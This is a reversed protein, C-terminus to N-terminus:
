ENDGLEDRVDKVDQETFIFELEDEDLNNPNQATEAATNLKEPIRYYKYQRTTQYAKDYLKYAAARRIILDVTSCQTLDSEAWANTRSQIDSMFRARHEDIEEAGILEEEVEKQASELDTISNKKTDLIRACEAKLANILVEGTEEDHEDIIEDASNSWVPELKTALDAVDEDEFLSKAVARNAGANECFGDLLKQQRHFLGTEAKSIDVFEEQDYEDIYDPLEMESPRPTDLDLVDYAGVEEAYILTKIALRRKERAVRLHAEVGRVDLTDDDKEKDYKAAIVNRPLDQVERNYLISAQRDTLTLAAHNPIPVDDGEGDSPTDHNTTVTIM